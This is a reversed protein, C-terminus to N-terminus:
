QERERKGELEEAAEMQVRVAPVQLPRKQLRGSERAKRLAALAYIGSFFLVFMVGAALGGGQGPILPMSALIAVLSLIAIWSTYPYGRLGHQRILPGGHRKRLRYHSAM